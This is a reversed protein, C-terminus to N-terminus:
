GGSKALTFQRVSQKGSEESVMASNGVVRPREQGFLAWLWQEAVDRNWPLHDDARAFCLSAYRSEDELQMFILTVSTPLHQASVRRLYDRNINAM